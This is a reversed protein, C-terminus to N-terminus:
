QKFSNTINTASKNVSNLYESFVIGEDREVSPGNVTTNTNYTDFVSNYDSSKGNGRGGSGNTGTNTRNDIDSSTTHSTSTDQYALGKALLENKVMRKFYEKYDTIPSGNDSVLRQREDIMQQKDHIQTQLNTYAESNVDLTTLKKQLANVENTMDEISSRYVNYSQEVAGAGGAVAILEDMRDLIEKETVKETKSSHSGGSQTSSGTGDVFNSRRVDSGTARQTQDPRILKFAQTAIEAFNIDDYPVNTNIDEAGTVNGADDYINVHKYQNNKKWWKYTDPSIGKNIRTRVAKDQEAYQESTRIRGILEADNASEGALRVAENIANGYDGAQAYSNVQDKYKKSFKDFWNLSEADQHLKSRLQGFAVDMASIKENATREREEMRSLSHALLNLDEQQPEFIAGKFTGPNFSITQLSYKPTRDPM